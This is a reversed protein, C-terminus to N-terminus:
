FARRGWFSTTKSMGVLSILMKKKDPDQSTSRSQTPITLDVLKLERCQMNGLMSLNLGNIRKLILSDQVCKVSDFLASLDGDVQDLIVEGRYIIDQSTSKSQTPITLDM